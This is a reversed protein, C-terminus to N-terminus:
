RAMPMSRPKAQNLTGSFFITNARDVGGDCVAPFVEQVFEAGPQYTLMTGDENTVHVRALQCLRPHCFGHEIHAPRHESVREFVLAIVCTYPELNDVFRIGGLGTRSTARQGLRPRSTDCSKSAQESFLRLFPSTRFAAGMVITIHIGGLVNERAPLRTEGSSTL